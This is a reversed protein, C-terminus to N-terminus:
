PGGAYTISRVLIYEHILRGGVAIRSGSWTSFNEPPSGAFVLAKALTRGSADQYFLYPVPGINNPYFVLTGTEDFNGATAVAAIGPSSTATTGVSATTTSKHMTVIALAYGITVIIFVISLIRGM